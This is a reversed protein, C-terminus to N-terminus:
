RVTVDGFRDIVIELELPAPPDVSALVARLVLRWRLAPDPAFTEININRLGGDSWHSIQRALQTVYATREESPRMFITRVDPMGFDPDAASEGVLTQVLSSVLMATTQRERRVREARNSPQTSRGAAALALESFLGVRVASSAVM